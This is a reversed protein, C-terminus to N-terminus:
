STCGFKARAFAKTLRTDIHTSAYDATVSAPYGEPLFAKMPGKEWLHIHMGPKDQVAGDKYLVSVVRGDLSEAAQVQQSRM